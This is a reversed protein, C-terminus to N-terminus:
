FTRVQRVEELSMNRAEAEAHILEERTVTLDNEIAGVEDETVM